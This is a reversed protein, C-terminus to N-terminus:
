VKVLSGEILLLNTMAGTQNQCPASRRRRRRLVRRGTTGIMGRMRDTTEATVTRDTTDTVAEIEEMVETTMTTDEIMDIVATDRGEIEGKMIIVEEEVVIAGTMDTEEIDERGMMMAIETSERMDLHHPLGVGLLLPEQEGGGEGGRLLVMIEQAEKMEGGQHFM